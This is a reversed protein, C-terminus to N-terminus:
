PWRNVHVSNQSTCVYDIDLYMRSVKMEQSADDRAFDLVFGAHMRPLGHQGAEVGYEHLYAEFKAPSVRVSDVTLMGLNGLTARYAVLAEIDAGEIQYRPVELRVSPSALARLSDEAQTEWAKVFTLARTYTSQVSPNDFALGATEYESPILDEAIWIADGLVTQLLPGTFELRLAFHATPRGSSEASAVDYLHAHALVSTTERGNSVVLPSNVAILTGIPLLSSRGQWAAALGSAELGLAKFTMTVEPAVAAEFRIQDGSIWSTLAVASLSAADTCGGLTRGNGLRNAVPSPMMGPPPKGPAPLPWIPQRTLETLKWARAPAAAGSAASVVRAAGQKFVMHLWCHAAPMGHSDVAHAHQMAVLTASAGEHDVQVMVSDISLQGHAEDSERMGWVEALGSASAHPLSVVVGQDALAAFTDFDTAEWAAIARAALSSLEFAAASPAEVARPPPPEHHVGGFLSSLFRLLGWGPEEGKIVLPPPPLPSPTAAAAVTVPEAPAGPTPAFNLAYEAEAVPAAAQAEIQKRTAGPTPAFNPAYEAEAVPAAAQAEIQKRTVMRAQKGRLRSQLRTAAKTQELLKAQVAEKSKPMSFSILKGPLAGPPVTIVVKDPMGPITLKLKSGPKTNPPVQLEYTQEEDDIAPTEAPPVSPAPADDAATPPRGAESAAAAGQAAVAEPKPPEATSAAPGDDPMDIQVLSKKTSSFLRAILGWSKLKAPAPQM